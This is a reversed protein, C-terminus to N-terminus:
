ARAQGSRLVPPTTKQKAQDRAGDFLGRGDERGGVRESEHLVDGPAEWWAFLPGRQVYTRLLSWMLKVKGLETADLRGEESLPRRVRQSIPRM